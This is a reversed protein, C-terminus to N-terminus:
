FALSSLPMEKLANSPTKDPGTKGFEPVGLNVGDQQIGINLCAATFPSILSHCGM